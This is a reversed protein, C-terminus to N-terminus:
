NTKTSACHQFGGGVFVHVSLCAPLRQWADGAALYELAPLETRRQAAEFRRSEVVDPLTRWNSRRRPCMLLQLRAAMPQRM